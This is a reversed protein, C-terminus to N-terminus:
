RRAEFFEGGPCVDFGADNVCHAAGVFAVFQAQNCGDKGPELGLQEWRKFVQGCFHAPQLDLGMDSSMTTLNRFLMLM